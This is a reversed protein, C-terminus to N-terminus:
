RPDIGAKMLKDISKKAEHLSAVNMRTDFGQISDAIKEILKIVEYASNGTAVLSGIEKMGLGPSPVFYWTGDEDISLNKIKVNKKFEDPVILPSEDDAAIDSKIIVQGVWEHEHQINPIQGNAIKWVVEPYNTIAEMMVEGPPSPIRNSNDILFGRKDKSIMIENSHQGNYEMEEFIPALKDTVSKICEPLLQYRVFRGLFSADKVEVGCIGIPAFSNGSFFGDFGTEGICSIEEEVIYTERNAYLGMETRLKMFPRKTLRWDKHKWTEGNGRVSGKVYVNKAGILIQELEDLGHATYYIGVPLGLEKLTEKLYLRDHELKDAFGCGFVPMGHSRMWHQLKPEMSDCFAVMDAEEYAEAWEKVKVLNSVNNAIDEVNHTPFSNTVYPGSWYFVTGFAEGMKIAFSVNNGYDLILIKLGSLDTM